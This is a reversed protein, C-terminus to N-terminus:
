LLRQPSLILLQLVLFTVGFKSLTKRFTEFKVPILGNRVCSTSKGREHEGFNHRQLSLLSFNWSFQIIGDGVTYTSSVWQLWKDVADVRAEDSEEFFVFACVDKKGARPSLGLKDWFRLASSLVQIVAESKAVSFFPPELQELSPKGGNESTFVSQLDLPGDLGPLTGLAKTVCRVDAQWVETACRHEAWCDVANARWADNWTASEVVEKALIQAAAELSKSKESAAGLLAAPSV